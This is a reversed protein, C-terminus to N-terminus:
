PALVLTEPGPAGVVDKSMADFVAHNQGEARHRLRAFALVAESGDARDEHSLLVHRIVHSEVDVALDRMRYTALWRPHAPDSLDLSHLGGGGDALYANSGAVRVDWAHGPSDYQGIRKPQTPDRVDIVQLGDRNAAM